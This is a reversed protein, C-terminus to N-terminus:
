DGKYLEILVMSRPHLESTLDVLSKLSSDEGSISVVEENDLGNTIATDNGSKSIIMASVDIFCNYSIGYILTEIYNQSKWKRGLSDKFIYTPNNKMMVGLAKATAEKKSLDNLFMRQMIIYLDSRIVKKTTSFMRRVQANVLSAYSEIADSVIVGYDKAGVSFDLDLHRADELISKEIISIADWLKESFTSVLEKEYNALINLIASTTARQGAVSAYNNSQRASQLEVIIKSSALEFSRRAEMAVDLIVEDVKRM